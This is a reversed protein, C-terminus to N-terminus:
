LCKRCISWLKSLRSKAIGIDKPFVQVNVVAGGRVLVWLAIGTPGLDSTVAEDGIGFVSGGRATMLMEWDPTPISMTPWIIARPWKEQPFGRRVDPLGYGRGPGRRQEIHACKGALHTIRRRGAARMALSGFIPHALSTSQHCPSSRTGILGAVQPDAAAHLRSRSCSEFSWFTGFCERQVWSGAGLSRVFACAHVRIRCTASGHPRERIGGSESRM